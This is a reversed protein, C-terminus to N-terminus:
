KSWRCEDKTMYYRVGHQGPGNVHKVVAEYTFGLRPLHKKLSKCDRSVTAELRYCFQFAWRFVDPAIGALSPATNYIDISATTPNRIQLVAAGVIEDGDVLGVATHAPIFSLGTKESYWRAVEADHGHLLRM